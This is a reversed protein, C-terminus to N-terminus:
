FLFLFTLVSVTDYVYGSAPRAPTFWFANDEDHHDISIGIFMPYHVNNEIIKLRWERRGSLVEAAGYASKMNTKTKM